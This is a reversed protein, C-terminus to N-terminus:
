AASTCYYVALDATVWVPMGVVHTISSLAAVNAVTYTVAEQLQKGDIDVTGTPPLFENLAIADAGGSIHRTHHAELYGVASVAKSDATSASSAVTSDAALAQAAASVAKSDATDADGNALTAASLAVSAQAAASTAMSQAVSDTAGDDVGSQLVSDATSMQVLVSTDASSAYAQASVAKSDATSIDANFGIKKYEVAM